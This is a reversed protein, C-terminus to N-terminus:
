LQKRFREPAVFDCSLVAAGALSTPVAHQLGFPELFWSSSPRRQLRAEWEPTERQGPLQRTLGVWPDVVGSRLYPHNGRSVLSGESLRLSVLPSSLQTGPFLINMWTFELEILM